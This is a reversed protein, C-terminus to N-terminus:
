TFIHDLLIKTGLLILIVGGIVNSKNPNKSGLLKGIIVGVFCIGFTILMIISASFIININLFAFTIGVTLADMSTAIALLLIEKFSFSDSIISNANKSEKVMKLGLILLLVFAIWHDIASIFNTFAYGLLYGTLPMLGQFLGFMASIFFINKLKLKEMALGKCVSVSFADMSLAISILLLELNTM